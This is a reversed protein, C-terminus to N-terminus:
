SQRDAGSAGAVAQADFDDTLLVERILANAAEIERYEAKTLVGKSVAEDLETKAEKLKKLLADRRIIAAFARELVALPDDGEGIYVGRALRERPGGPELVCQAAANMLRHSPPKRHQGLPCLFLRLLIRWHLGPFERIVDRLRQQVRYLGDEFCLDLLPKDAAQRGEAEFRKLVASLLYVESLIDGLRGSLAEKRKLAGGLVGLAMESIVALRVSAHTLQRYYPALEGAGEPAHAFRGFTLGHAFSRTFNRIDHWIHAFVAHDFAKLGEERDPNRVAEMEALLYPHCRIAGQGFIILSRTLINAGEVTIAVPIANYATALYNRPGEMVLKGGHVDMADNVAQRLRETAHYKMIASVVAPKEGKDIGAATLKRAADILYASAAIRALPERVGEFNGISLGFQERVRAYAGCAQASLAAAACSMSPLSIGRGAALAGTLMRWGKGIHDRGGLVQDMPVFVDKGRVPGNQFALGSPIHRRGTDLGPTDTPVLAVTIGLEEEGGLLGDPDRLRFALGAITAVPALTIYRKDCTIEIGLVRKGDIEREVVVGTDTMAGADSGAEIGTLAFCPIDEGSALRPLYHAKQEDTGYLMLLEGPGLSNPVMVTVAATISRTAITRVVESHALASFGKGGYETPIIMALFGERIMMDWVPRPLDHLESEIQWDDLLACLRQVPGDIFAQEAETLQGTELTRLYSWDPRGSMIQADWWVTGAEIAEAETASMEPMVGEYWRMLPKSILNRRWQSM